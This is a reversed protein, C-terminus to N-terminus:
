RGLLGVLVDGRAIVLGRADRTTGERPDYTGLVLGRADCVISRGTPTQREIRGLIVGRADRVIQVPAPQRHAPAEM